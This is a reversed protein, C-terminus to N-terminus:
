KFLISLEGHKKHPSAIYSLIPTSLRDMISNMSFSAANRSLVNPNRDYGYNVMIGLGNEADKSGAINANECIRYVNAGNSLHFRKVLDDKNTVIYRLATSFPNNTLSPAQTESWKKLGRLPSLTSFIINPEDDYQKNLHEHLKSILLEGEGSMKFFRSISFFILSTPTTKIDHLPEHLIDHVNSPLHAYPEANEKAPTTSRYVYIAALITRTEPEILAFATKNSNIGGLRNQTLNEVTEVGHSHVLDKYQNEFKGSEFKGALQQHLDHNETDPTVEVLELRKEISRKVLAFHARQAFNLKGRKYDGYLSGYLRISDSTTEGVINFATFIGM